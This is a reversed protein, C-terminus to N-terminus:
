SFLQSIVCIRADSLSSREYLLHTDMGRHARADSARRPRNSKSAVTQRHIQRQERGSAPNRYSQDFVFRELPFKAPSVQLLGIYFPRGLLHRPSAEGLMRSSNHIKSLQRRSQSAAARLHHINEGEPSSTNIECEPLRAVQGWVCPPSM